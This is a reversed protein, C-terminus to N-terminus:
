PQSSSQQSLWAPAAGRPKWIHVGFGNHIPKQPDRVLHIEEPFHVDPDFWKVIELVSFKWLRLPFLHRLVPEYLQRTQWWSLATHQYKIEVITILGLDFRFLLGDPQCYRLRPEGSAGFRLWPSAVYAEPVSAELYEQVKAEYKVGLRKRASRRRGRDPIFSPQDALEAFTVVGAPNFHRPPSLM